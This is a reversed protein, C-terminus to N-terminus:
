NQFIKRTKWLVYTKVNWVSQRWNWSIDDQKRPFILFINDTQWRSFKGLFHYLNLLLFINMKISLGLAQPGKQSPEATITWSSIPVPHVKLSPLETLFIIEKSCPNVKFPFFTNGNKGKLTSGKESFAFLFNCFNDAKYWIASIRGLINKGEKFSFTSVIRTFKVHLGKVITNSIGHFNSWYNPFYSRDWFPQRKSPMSVAMKLYTMQGM